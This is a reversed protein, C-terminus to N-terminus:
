RSEEFPGREPRLGARAMGLTLGGTWQFHPLDKPKRWRGGWELGIHEGIEGIRTWKPLWARSNMEDWSEGTFMVDFALGFNHWSYGPTAYTVITGPSSRGQAYLKAQQEMTRLGQTITLDYGEAACRYIFDRAALQVSAHLNLIHGENTV